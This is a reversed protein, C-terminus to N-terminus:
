GSSSRRRMRRHRRRAGRGADNAPSSCSGACSTPSRCGSARGCASSRSSRPAAIYDSAAIKDALKAKEMTLLATMLKTTSAIPRRERRRRARLAGQRHQGRDPDGVLHQHRATEESHRSRPWCVLAVAALGRGSPPFRVGDSYKLEQGPTLVQPELDPNLQLITNLPM